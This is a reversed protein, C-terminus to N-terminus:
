LIFGSSGWEKLRADELEHFKNAFPTGKLAIYVQYATRNNGIYEGITANFYAVAVAEQDLTSLKEKVAAM